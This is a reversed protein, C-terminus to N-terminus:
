NSSSPLIDLNMKEPSGLSSSTENDCDNEDDRDDTETQDGGSDDDSCEDEDSSPSYKADVKRGISAALSAAKLTNFERDKEQYRQREVLLESELTEFYFILFDHCRNKDRYPGIM